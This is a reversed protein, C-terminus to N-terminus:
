SMSKAVMIPMSPAVIMITVAIESPVEGSIKTLGMLRSMTTPPLM